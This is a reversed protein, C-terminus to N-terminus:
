QVVNSGIKLLQITADGNECWRISFCLVGGSPVVNKTSDGVANAIADEEGLSSVRLVQRLSWHGPHVDM